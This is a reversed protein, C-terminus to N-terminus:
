EEKWDREGEREREANKGVVIEANKEKEVNKENTTKAIKKGEQMKGKFQLTRKPEKRKHRAGANAKKKFWRM